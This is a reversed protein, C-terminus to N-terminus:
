IRQANGEFPHAVEYAEAEQSIMEPTKKDFYERQWKTYDFRERIIISIFREAEIGGLCDTLCKMGFSLLEANTRDM